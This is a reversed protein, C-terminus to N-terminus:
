KRRVFSPLQTIAVILEQIDGGSEVFIKELGDVSCADSEGETRGMVFRYAHRAFCGEAAPSEALIGALEPV